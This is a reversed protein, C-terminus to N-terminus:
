YTLPWSRKFISVQIELFDNVLKIYFRVIFFHTLSELADIITVLDDGCLRVAMAPIVDLNIVKLNLTYSM